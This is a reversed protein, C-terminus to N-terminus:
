LEAQVLVKFQARTLGAKKALAMLAPTIHSEVKANQEADLKAQSKSRITYRITPPSPQLVPGSRVQTAADFPEFGQRIAEIYYPKRNVASDEKTNFGEFPTAREVFDIPQHTLSFKMYFITM